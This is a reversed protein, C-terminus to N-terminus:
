FLSHEPSIKRTILNVTVVMFCGIVSQFMTVAATVGFNGGGEALANLVYSDLTQTTPYLAGINLTCQYFLGTNSSMIGGLSLLTLIAIMSSLLPLTIYRIKQWPTAGDLTAAEFVEQDMGSLASLYLVSGYGTSKWLHVLALIIPWYQPSSYFNIPDHGLAAIVSNLFGKDTLLLGRLIFSVAVFSIFTPMIMITQSVKPFFKNHCENLAVALAVDAVTSLLRFLLYYGVTNRLIRWITEGSLFLFKINYIGNWDSGWIGKSFNYNKFALVLGAMPVYNFLIM